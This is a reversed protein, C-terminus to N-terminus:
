IENEGDEYDSDEWNELASSHLLKIFLYCLFVLGFLGLLIEIMEMM